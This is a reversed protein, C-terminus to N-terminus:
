IEMMKSIMKNQIKDLRMRRCRRKIYKCIGAATCVFVDAETSWLCDNSGM